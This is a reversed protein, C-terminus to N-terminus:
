YILKVWIANMLFINFYCVKPMYIINFYCYFLIEVNISHPTQQVNDVNFKKLSFFMM